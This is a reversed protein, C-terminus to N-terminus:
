DPMRTGCEPCFKGPAESGCNPCRRTGEAKGDPEMGAFIGMGIGKRPVVREGTMRDPTECRKLMEVVADVADGHGHWRAADAKFRIVSGHMEGPAGYQLTVSSSCSYDLMMFEREIELRQWSAMDEKRAMEAIRNLIEPDARYTRIVTPQRVPQDECTLLATGDEMLKLEKSYHEDSDMMMGSSSSYWSCCVLIDRGGSVGTEETQRKLGGCRDCFSGTNEEYGCASCKWKEEMDYRRNRGNYRRANGRFLAAAVSCGAGCLTISQPSSAASTKTM